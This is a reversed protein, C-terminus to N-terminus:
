YNGGLEAKNGLESSGLGQRCRNFPGEEAPRPADEPVTFGRDVEALNNSPQDRTCVGIHACGKVCNRLFQSIQPLVFTQLSCLFPKRFGNGIGSRYKVSIAISKIVFSGGEVVGNPPSFAIFIRTM